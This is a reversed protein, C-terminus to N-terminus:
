DWIVGKQETRLCAGLIEKIVCAIECEGNRSTLHVMEGNSWSRRNRNADTARSIAKTELSGHTSGSRTRCGM